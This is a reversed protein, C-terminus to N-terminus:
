SADARVVLVPVRSKRLIKEASSGLMAYEIGRRGHSGIVILDAPWSAAQSVVVDHVPSKLRDDLIADVAVGAQSVAATADALIRTGEAHLDELWSGPQGAYADMVFSFSVDDIVHLLRIRGNVARALEIAQTLGASSAASGDIPVLLNQYM